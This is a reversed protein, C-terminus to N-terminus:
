REKGAPPIDDHYGRDGADIADAIRVVETRIGNMDDFSLLCTAIDKKPLQNVAEIGAILYLKSM